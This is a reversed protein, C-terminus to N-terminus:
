RPPPPCEKRYTSADVVTGMVNVFEFTMGHRDATVRLAGYEEHYQMRTEPLATVFDYRSAGGLGVTFYSIQGVDFREYLHDHGAMVVDAGWAEFPWQLDFTSGHPGSSYPPHHFYVVDFCATSAAFADKLWAAQVSDETVGDPENFDSDLAFLHVLGRPVDYYRENGPLTFYNTYPALGPTFWDHNGPSPWFRNLPSGAEPQGRYNGIFQCYYKGINQDITSAAGQFYNNDGTTIVFDPNWSTVLDAVRAEDAGDLGFDGIVAFQVRTALTDGGDPGGDEDEDEGGAAASGVRKPQPQAGRRPLGVSAPCFPEPSGTRDVPDFCAPLCGMVAIAVSVAHRAPRGRQSAAMSPRPGALLLLAWMVDQNCCLGPQWNGKGTAGRGATAPGEWQSAAGGGEGIDGVGTAGPWRSSFLM